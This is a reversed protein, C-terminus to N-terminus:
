FVFSQESREEMNTRGVRHQILGMAIARNGFVTVSMVNVLLFTTTATKEQLLLRAPKAGSSRLATDRAELSVSIDQAFEVDSNNPHGGLGHRSGPSFLSSGFVVQKLLTLVSM